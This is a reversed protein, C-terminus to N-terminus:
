HPDARARARLDGDGVRLPGCQFSRRCPHRRLAPGGVRGRLGCSAPPRPVAGRGPPGGLVLRDVARVDVLPAPLIGAHASPMSSRNPTSAGQPAQRLCGRALPLQVLSPSLGERSSQRISEFSEEALDHPISARPSGCCRVCTFGEAPQGSGPSHARSCSAWDGVTAPATTPAPAAPCQEDKGWSTEVPGGRPPLPSPPM